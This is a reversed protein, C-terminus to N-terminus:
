AYLNAIWAKTHARIRRKAENHSKAPGYITGLYRMRADWRHGEFKTFSTHGVINDGAFLIYGGGHASIVWKFKIHPTPSTKTAM